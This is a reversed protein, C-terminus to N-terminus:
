IAIPTPGGEQERVRRIALIAIDDEPITDAVLRAMVRAGRPAGLQRRM